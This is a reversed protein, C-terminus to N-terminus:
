PERSPSPSPSPSPTPSPVVCITGDPSSVQFFPKENYVPPDTPLIIDVTGDVRDDHEIVPDVFQSAVLRIQAVQTKNARITVEKVMGDDETNYIRIGQFGFAELRTRARSAQGTTYGGNFIRVSVQTVNITESSRTVCPTPSPSPLPATLSNWGWFAGWALLGLLGLLIVPTAILRFIRM